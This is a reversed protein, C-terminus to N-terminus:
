RYEHVVSLNSFNVVILIISTFIGVNSQSKTQVRVPTYLVHVSCLCPYSISFSYQSIPYPIKIQLTEMPAILDAYAFIFLKGRGMSCTCFPFSLFLLSIMISSLYLFYNLNYNNM